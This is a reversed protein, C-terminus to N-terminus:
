ISGWRQGFMAYAVIREYRLSGGPLMENEDFDFHALAREAYRFLARAMRRRDEHREDPEGGPAISAAAARLAVLVRAEQVLGVRRESTGTVPWIAPLLQTFGRELLDDERLEAQFRAQEDLTPVILPGRGTLILELARMRARVLRLHKSVAADLASRRVAAFLAPAEPHPRSALAADAYRHVALATALDLADGESPPEERQQLRVALVAATSRVDALVRTEEAERVGRGAAPRVGWTAPLLLGLGREILALDADRRRLEAPEGPLGRASAVEAREAFVLGLHKALVEERATRREM